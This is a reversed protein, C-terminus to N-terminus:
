WRIELRRLNMRPEGAPVLRGDKNIIVHQEWIPEQELCYRVSRYSALLLAAVLVALMLRRLSFQFWKM